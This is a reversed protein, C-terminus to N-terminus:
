NALAEQLKKRIGNVREEQKRIDEDTISCAHLLPQDPNVFVGPNTTLANKPSTQGTVPHLSTHLATAVSQFLTQERINPGVTKLQKPLDISAFEAGDSDCANMAELRKEWFLQRPKDQTGHKLESKVKSEQSKIVTVPQKFISATQRIPAILSADSRITRYDFQSLQSQQASNAPLNVPNVTATVSASINLKKPLSQSSRIKSAAELADKYEKYAQPNYYTAFDLTNKSSNLKSPLQGYDNRKKELNINM